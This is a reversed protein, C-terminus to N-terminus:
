NTSRRRALAFTAPEFGTKREMHRWLWATLCLDAFDGVGTRNQNAGGPCKVNHLAKKTCQYAAPFNQITRRGLTQKLSVINAPLIAVIPALRQM